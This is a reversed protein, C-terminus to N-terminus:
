EGPRAMLHRRGGVGSVEIVLGGLQTGLSSGAVTGTMVWTFAQATTGSPAHTGVLEYQVATLPGLATGGVAPALAM